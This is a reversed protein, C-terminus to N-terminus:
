GLRKTAGRLPNVVDNGAFRVHVSLRRTRRMTLSSRYTCDTGLRVVRRSVTSRGAKIQISVRGVCGRQRTVAAPLSLAGTTTVRRGRRSSNNSLGTATFRGVFVSRLAIAQQGGSDIARAVLLNQGVDADEPAYQCEYPAATDRCIVAEDDIFEVAVIGRDDSATVTLKAGAAPLASGAAPASFAVTPALDAAPAVPCGGPAPGASTICRDSGDAVDDGDSDSKNPDSGLTAETTDPIGDADTDAPCGSPAPGSTRRCDDTGDDIGDGDVDPDLPDPDNGDILGDADDDVDETEDGLLDQDFDHELEAFVLLRGANVSWVSGDDAEVGDAPLPQVRFLTGSPKFSATMAFNTTDIQIGIEDGATIPVRIKEDVQSCANKTVAPSVGALTIKDAVRRFVRLRVNGSAVGGAGCTADARWRLLVGDHPAAYVPYGQTYILCPAATCRPSQFLGPQDTSWDTLGVTTVAGAPAAGALMGLMTAVMVARRM